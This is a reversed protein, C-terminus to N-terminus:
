VAWMRYNSLYLKVSGTMGEGGSGAGADNGFSQTILDPITESKVTPDRGIFWWRSTLWETAAAQLDAPIPSFGATYDILITTGTWGIVLTDDVRYFMGTAANVDWLGADIAAGNETITAMPLGEADLVIPFQRTIIPEGYGLWNHVTRFQDRYAQVAFVRGCYREIAASVQTIQEALKDDKSTDDAPINLALKAQDLTILDHSSAPTIVRSIRYASNFAM